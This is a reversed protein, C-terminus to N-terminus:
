GKIKRASSQYCGARLWALNYVCRHLSAQLPLYVLSSIIGIMSDDLGIELLLKALFADTVLIATFYEFACEWLYASRSRKYEKSEYISPSPEM